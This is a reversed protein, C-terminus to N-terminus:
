IRRRANFDDTPSTRDDNSNTPHIKSVDSAKGEIVMAIGLGGQLDDAIQQNCFVQELGNRLTGARMTKM